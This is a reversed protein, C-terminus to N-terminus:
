LYMVKLINKGTNTKFIKDYASHVASSPLNDEFANVLFDAELLIRYDIGDVGDYTHHKSVLYCVRDILEADCGLGELLKRAEPPGEIQQYEGSSSNYKQEAIKIGIDHVAAAAELIELTRPDISEGEGITKAFALVKLLHNIRRVDNGFYKIMASVIESTLINM